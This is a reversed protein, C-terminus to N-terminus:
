VGLMLSLEAMSPTYPQSIAALEGMHDQLLYEIDMATRRDFVAQADALVGYGRDRRRLSENLRQEKLFEAVFM